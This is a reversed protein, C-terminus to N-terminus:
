KKLTAIREKALDIASRAPRQSMAMLDMVCAKDWAADVHMSRLYGYAEVAQAPRGGALAHAQVRTLTIENGYNVKLFLAAEFIDDRYTGTM